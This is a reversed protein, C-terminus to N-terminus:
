LHGSLVLVILVILIVTLVGFPRYGWSRNYPYVPLSTLLIVILVILIISM